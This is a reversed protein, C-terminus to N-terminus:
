RSAPAGGGTGSPGPDEEARGGVQEMARREAPAAAPIGRGLTAQRERHRVPRLAAAATATNGNVGVTDVGSAGNSCVVHRVTQRGVAPSRAASCCLVRGRRLSTGAARLGSRGYRPLRLSTWRGATDAPLSPRARPAPPGSGARAPRAALPPRSTRFVPGEIPLPAAAPPGAGGRAVDLAAGPPRAAPRPPPSSACRRTRLASRAAAASRWLRDNTQDRSRKIAGVGRRAYRPAQLAPPTLSCVSPLSRM